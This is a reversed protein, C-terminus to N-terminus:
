LILAGQLDVHLEKLHFKPGLTQQYAELFGAPIDQFISMLTSGAGSLFVAKAGQQLLEQRIAPHSEWLPLRYPEHLRDRFAERLLTEEGTEMAKFLLALRSLNFSADQYTVQAPLVKRADTTSSPRDPIIAVFRLSPHVPYETQLVGHDTMASARLGGLLAPTVNDPHGEVETALEVLDYLSLSDHHYRNAAVLAAIICTASSGLGRAIPIGAEVQVYMPPLRKGTRKGYHRWAKHVLFVKDRGPKLTFKFTNYLDLAMGLCDFGPGLNATTAPVRVRLSNM